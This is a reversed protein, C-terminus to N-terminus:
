GVQLRGNLQDIQKIIGMISDRKGDFLDSISGYDNFPSEQLHSKHLAGNQIVHEVVHQVFNIQKTNLSNDSLFQSFLDMAAAREMGVLRAVLTLLPEEGFEKHYDDETGLDKWLIKEIYTLDVNTLQLNNRLKHIVLDNAHEKLYSEVKARYSRFDGSAGTLEAENIQFDLRTDLFNSYYIGKKEYEILDLLDRLAIRVSEHEFIDAEDWYIPQQIRNIIAAQAKVRPMHGKQALSEGTGVLKKRHKPNPLGQLDALMITYMLYDFRKALEEEESATLLGTIERDLESIM